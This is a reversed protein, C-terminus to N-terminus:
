VHTKGVTHDTKTPTGHGKTFFTDEAATPHPTSGTGGELAKGITPSPPASFCHGPAIAKDRAGGRAETPNQKTHISARTDPGSCKPNNRAGSSNFRSGINNHFLVQDRAVHEARFDAKDSALRAGWRKRVGPNAHYM